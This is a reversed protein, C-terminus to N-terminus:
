FQTSHISQNPCHSASNSNTPSISHSRTSCQTAFVAHYSANSRNPAFLYRAISKLLPFLDLNSHLIIQVQDLLLKHFVKHILQYLIAVPQHQQSRIFPMTHNLSPHTSPFAIVTRVTDPAVKNRPQSNVVAIRVRNCHTWRISHTWIPLPAWLPRLLDFRHKGHIMPCLQRPAYRWRCWIWYVYRWSYIRHFCFAFWLSYVKRDSEWFFEIWHLEILIFHMSIAFFFHMIITKDNTKNEFKKEGKLKFISLTIVAVLKWKRKRSYVKLRVGNLFQLLWM